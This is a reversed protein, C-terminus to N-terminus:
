DIKLICNYTDTRVNHMDTAGTWYTWYHYMEQHYSKLVQYPFDDTIEALFANNQYCLKQADFWTLRDNTFFRYCGHGPIPIWDDM